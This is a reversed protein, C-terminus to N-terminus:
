HDRPLERFIGKAMVTEKWESAIDRATDIELTFQSRILDDECFCCVELGVDNQWIWCSLVRHSPGVLRWSTEILNFHPDPRTPPRSERHEEWTTMPHPQDAM